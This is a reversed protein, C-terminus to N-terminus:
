NVINPIIGTEHYFQELIDTLEKKEIARHLLRLFEDKEGKGYYINIFDKGIDVKKLHIGETNFNIIRSGLLIGFCSIYIDMAEASLVITNYKQSKQEARAAQILMIKNEVILGAFALKRYERVSLGFLLIALSSSVIVLSNGNLTHFQLNWAILAFSTLLCLGCLAGLTYLRQRIAKM